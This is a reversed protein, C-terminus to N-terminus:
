QITIADAFVFSSAHRPGADIHQLCRLRTQDNTFADNAVNSSLFELVGFRAVIWDRFNGLIAYTQAGSGRTASVQSSRVVPVGEWELKQGQAVSRMMDVLFPGQQDTTIAASARRNRIKAWLQRRMVWATPEEATDPLKAEMEAADSIQITDATVAHTLLKDNGPTWTAASDYTILGKIQTGGTGELMALDARLAAVKAMDNRVMSEATISAFRILENNLDVIIMLKKAQLDLYGTGPTSETGALAEGVWHATSASTLKPFQMRGNAPLAQETAGARAFVELHRQIDILEMLKPFGVLVGGSLDSVTGLDKTRGLKKNLWAEEGADVKDANAVMKYRLESVLREDASSDFPIHRTCFPIIMNLRGGTSQPQWRSGYLAKLKNHVDIEYKAKDETLIGSAYGAARLVSYGDSDGPLSGIQAMFNPTVGPPYVAQASKEKIEALDKERQADKVKLEEVTKSLEANENKYNRLQEAVEAPTVKAPTANYSM